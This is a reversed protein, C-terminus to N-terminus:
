CGPSGNGIYDLSIWKRCYLLYRSRNALTRPLHLPGADRSSAPRMTHVPPMPCQFTLRHSSLKPLFSLLTERPKTAHLVERLESAAVRGDRDVHKFIYLLAYLLLYFIIAEPCTASGAVRYTRLKYSM